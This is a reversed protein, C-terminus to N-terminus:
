FKRPRLVLITNFHKRLWAGTVISLEQHYHKPKRFGFKRTGNSSRIVRQITQIELNGNVRILCDEYPLLGILRRLQGAGVQVKDLEFVEGRKLAELLESRQIIWGGKRRRGWPREVIRKIGSM